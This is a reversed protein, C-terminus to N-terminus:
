FREGTESNVLCLKFILRFDSTTGHPRQRIIQDVTSAGPKHM